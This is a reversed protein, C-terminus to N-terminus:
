ASSAVGINTLNGWAGGGAVNDYTFSEGWCHASSTSFTSATEATVLRNLQDYAFTQSRTTDRNNAIGVVNGNDGAGLNFNYKMDLITAAAATGTCLTSTPLPTGTTTYIWCPQLRTNFISTTVLNSGNTIQSVAGAPSYCVGNTGTGNACTGQAYIVNTSADQAFSPRGASDVTYNITRGSPYTLSALSHDLNYAYVTNKRVGLITRVVSEQNDLVDYSFNEFDIKSQTSTLHGINACKPIVFCETNDYGLIIHSSDNSSNTRELLRNLADYTYTNVISRADTKTLMNGDADYTYTVTGTEPNTASTLRKVSDYIFSRNRSGNQVASTLDDLVDYGYSTVWVPDSTGPCGNANVTASTSNPEDVEALRGLGDLTSRRFHMAEDTVLTTSGCYATTVTSGDPDAVGVTRGLADYSYTTLGYTPDSTTRFPNSITHVRGHADYTTDVNVAGQPDATQKRTVRGLGDFTNTAQKNLASTIKQTLTVSFPFSSEQHTITDQGGNPYSATALRLMSDYTYTTTLNNPDTVSTVLGTNFDYVFTTAQSKANTVTTPLAGAYTSSYAYTTTNGNPDTAAKVEGTDFFGASSALNSGTTNLWRHVSTQNGRFTTDPPSADLQTTVGSSTLPFEDYGYSTLAIQTGTKDTIQVSSVLNLLNSTFYNSNAPAVYTTTTTRVLPGPAGNGYAYERKAILQGYSTVVSSGESDYDNQVQSVQGNPWTTTVSSPLAATTPYYISGGGVTKYITDITKVLTQTSGILQYVKTNTEFYSTRILSFSHVTQNGQPDTVTTVPTNTCVGSYAYTWTHDGMGDNANVTRSTVWRSFSDPTGFLQGSCGITTYTYTITGGTPLSIKTPIGYNVTTPDGPNRDNYEFTWSTGNPLVFSQLMTGNTTTHGVTPSPSNDPINIDQAVECFKFNMTGGNLGPLSDVTASNIPLPGTCGSFDTTSTGRIPITRGVSDAGTRMFENGNADELYVASSGFNTRVGNRDIAYTPETLWGTGSPNSYIGSADTTRFNTASPNLDMPHVGGDSSIIAYAAMQGVQPITFLTRVFGLAQDQVVEAVSGSGQNFYWVPKCVGGSFCEQQTSAAKISAEFTFSLKLAQGRQPYNVVPIRIIVNGNSLNISDFDGSQYSQYPVLGAAVDPALQANAVNSFQSSIALLFFSIVSRRINM